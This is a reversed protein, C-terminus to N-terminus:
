CPTVEKPRHNTCCAFAQRLLAADAVTGGGREVRLLAERVEMEIRARGAALRQRPLLPRFDDM